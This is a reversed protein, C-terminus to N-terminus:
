TPIRSIPEQLPEDPKSKRNSMKLSKNWELWGLAALVLFLTYLLLTQYAHSQYYIRLYLADIAIWMPWCEIKKRMMLLQAPVSAGSALADAYPHLSDSYNDVLYGICLVSAVTGFLLLVRQLNTLSTVPAETKDLGGHLWWWWGYVSTAIFFIQLWQDVYLKIDHFFVFYAACSLIGIPWCWIKERVTLAVCILGTM